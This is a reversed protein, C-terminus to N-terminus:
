LGRCVFGRWTGCCPGWPCLLGDVPFRALREFVEDKPNGLLPARGGPDGEHFGDCLSAGGNSGEEIWRDCDGTYSGGGGCVLNREVPFLNGYLSLHGYGSVKKVDRGPDGTFSSEWVGEV